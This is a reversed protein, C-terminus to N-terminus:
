HGPAEYQNDGKQTKIRALTELITEIRRSPAAEWNLDDPIRIGTLDFFEKRNNADLIKIGEPMNEKDIKLSIIQGTLKRRQYVKTYKHSKAPKGVKKSTM